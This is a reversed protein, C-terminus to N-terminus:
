NYTVLFHCARCRHWGTQWPVLLIVAQKTVIPNMLTMQPLYLWKRWFEFDGRQPINYIGTVDSDFIYVENSNSKTWWRWAAWTWASIFLTQHHHRASSSFSNVIFFLSSESNTLIFSWLKLNRYWSTHFPSAHPSRTVCEFLLTVSCSKAIPDQQLCTHM